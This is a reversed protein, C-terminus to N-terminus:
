LGCAGSREPYATVSIADELRPPADAHAMRLCWQTRLMRNCLYRRGSAM